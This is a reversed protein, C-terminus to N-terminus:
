RVGAELADDVDAMEDDGFVAFLDLDDLGNRAATAGAVDALPAHLDHARFSLTTARREKLDALFGEFLPDHGLGVRVHTPRPTTESAANGQM